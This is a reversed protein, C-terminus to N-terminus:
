RQPHVGLLAVMIRRVDDCSYPKLVVPAAAHGAVIGPQGYGTAFAYPIGRDRLVDAVAFSPQGNLNVDLIAADIDGGGARALAADLAGEPGAVDAGMGSLMDQLLMAVLAEDEVVLITRGSLM